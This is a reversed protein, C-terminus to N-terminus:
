VLAELKEVDYRHKLQQGISLNSAASTMKLPWVAYDPDTLTSVGHLLM